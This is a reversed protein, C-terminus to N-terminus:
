MSVGASGDASVTFGIWMGTAAHAPVYCVMSYEGAADAVFSITEYGEPATSETMSTAGSTIAGDFAIDLADPDFMAPYSGGASRDIGLSHPNVTDNNTFNITVTYGTPVVITAEGKSYGNYNWGNNAATEGAVIDLTVTMAGEDVSMWEPMSMEGMDAAPPTTEATEVGSTESAPPTADATETESEGGGCAVLALSFIAALGTAFGRKM